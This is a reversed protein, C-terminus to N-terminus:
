KMLRKKERELADKAKEADTDSFQTVVSKVIKDMAYLAINILVKQWWM